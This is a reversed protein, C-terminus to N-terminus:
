GGLRESLHADSCLVRRLQKVLLILLSATRFGTGAIRPGPKPFVPLNSVVDSPPGESRGRMRKRALVPRRLARVKHMRSGGAHRSREPPCGSRTRFCLQRARTEFRFATTPYGPLSM